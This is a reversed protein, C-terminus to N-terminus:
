GNLTGELNSEAGGHARLKAGLAAALRSWDESTWQGNLGSGQEEIGCLRWQAVHLAWDGPIVGAAKLKKLIAECLSTQLQIPTLQKHNLISHQPWGAREAMAKLAEILKYSDRQNAWRMKECKLQRRAFAELAQESPNHVAGLQHLSIWLARAKKAMPNSAAKGSGLPSFGKSQMFALVRGLQADSCKTLSTQGTHEFLAQRYDDEVMNLQKRAIQIKAIMSRRHQSSADFRAPRAAAAHSLANM